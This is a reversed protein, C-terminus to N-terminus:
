IHSWFKKMFKYYDNTTDLGWCMITYDNKVLVKLTKMKHMLSWIELKNNWFAHDFSIIYYNNGLFILNEM